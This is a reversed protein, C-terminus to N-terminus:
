HIRQRGGLFSKSLQIELGEDFAGGGEILRNKTAAMTNRSKQMQLIPKDNDQRM